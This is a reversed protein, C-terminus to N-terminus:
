IKLPHWEELLEDCKKHYEDQLDYVQKMIEKPVDNSESNGIHVFWNWIHFDIYKFRFDIHFGLSFCKRSCVQYAFGLKCRHENM